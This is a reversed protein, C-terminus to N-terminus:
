PVIFHYSNSSVIYSTVSKTDFKFHRVVLNPVDRFNFQKGVQFLKHQFVPIDMCRCKLFRPYLVKRM